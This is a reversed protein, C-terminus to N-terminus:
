APIQNGGSSKKFQNQDLPWTNNLGLSEWITAVPVVM